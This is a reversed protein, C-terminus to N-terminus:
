ESLTFEQFFLPRKDGVGPNNDKTNEMLFVYLKNETVFANFHAYKYKDKGTYIISWDNKGELTTKINVIGNLLEVMFVHNKYSYIEGRNDPNPILGGNNSSFNAESPLKYYHVNNNDVRTIFHIAGNETVTWSPDSATKPVNSTNFDKGPQAIQIPDPNLDLTNKIPLTIPKNDVNFWKSKQDKPIDNTYAYYFGSNLMFGNNTSENNNTSYRVSYGSYFKGNLFREGGYLSCRDPLPLNGKHFVWNNSWLKGDYHAMLIDGNGSGGKRYRAVLSGDNARHLMPYTLREYNQGEKLFSQKPKFIDIKFEEDSVFAKNELTVSYNFFDDPLLTSTYAHLDYILHITNNITSIGVAATNHSDGRIGTGKLLEGNQGVHQYPFEITVWKSNPKNLNKRSLMLNRKDLGGKCWTLFAYGNVIDICDGYPTIRQSFKYNVNKKGAFYLGGEGSDTVQSLEVLSASLTKKQGWSFYSFFCVVFFLSYKKM